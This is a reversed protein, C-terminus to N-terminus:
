KGSPSTVIFQDTLNAIRCSKENEDLNEQPVEIEITCIWTEAHVLSEIV